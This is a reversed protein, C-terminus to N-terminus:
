CYECVEEKKPACEKHYVKGKALIKTGTVPKKCKACNM